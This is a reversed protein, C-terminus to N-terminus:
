AWVMDDGVVEIVSRVAEIYGNIEVYAAMPAEKRKLYDVLVDQLTDLLVLVLDVDTVREYNELLAIPKTRKDFAVISFLLQIKTDSGSSDLSPPTYICVRECGLTDALMEVEQCPIKRIVPAHRRMLEALSIRNGTAPLVHGFKSQAMRQRDRM